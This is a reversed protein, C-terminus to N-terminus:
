IECCGTSLASCAACSGVGTHFVSAPSGSPLPGPTVRFSISLSSTLFHSLTHSFMVAQLMWPRKHPLSLSGLFGLLNTLAWASQPSFLTRLLAQFCQNCLTLKSPERTKFWMKNGKQTMHIIVGLTHLLHAPEAKTPVMM